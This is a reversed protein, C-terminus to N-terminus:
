SDIPLPKCLSADAAVLRAALAAMVADDDNPVRTRAFALGLTDALRAVEIDLDHLVELHDSVFGCPCVLVGEIGCNRELERLVDGIDPGIWEDNTRGASQWAQGWTDPAHLDITHAVAEATATVQAAYPDGDELARLPLSHATFIVKTRPPMTTLAAAVERALFEVYAPEVNWSEIGGVALDPDLLNACTRLRRFYEGVSAAAFHPALVLGLLRDVRSDVLREVADEIFPEAHKLGIEVRFRGPAQTNLQAHIKRAQAQTRERLPSVGGIAQYRLTLDRLLEPTPPRGRRIHTYYAEIDEPRGPAGYAMVVVGVM